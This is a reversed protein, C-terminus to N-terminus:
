PAICPSINLVDAKRALAQWWQQLLPELRLQPKFKGAETQSMKQLKDNPTEEGGEDTLPKLCCLLLQFLHSKLQTLSLLQVTREYWMAYSTTRSLFGIHLMIKVCNCGPWKLLCMVPCNPSPLCHNYVIELQAKWHWSYYHYYYHYYKLLLLTANLGKLAECYIYRDHLVMKLPDLFLFDMRRLHTHKTENIMCKWCLQQICRLLSFCVTHVNEQWFPIPKDVKCWWLTYM